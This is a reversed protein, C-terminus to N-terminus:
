TPQQGRRRRRRRRRLRAYPSQSAQPADYESTPGARPENGASTLNNRDAAIAGGVDLCVSGAYVTLASTPTSATSATSPTSPTPPTAACPRTSPRAVRATRSTIARDNWGFINNDEILTTHTGGAGRAAAVIGTAEISGSKNVGTTGITNNTVTGSMTATGSGKNM